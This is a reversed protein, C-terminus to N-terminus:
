RLVSTTRDATVFLQSVSALPAKVIFQAGQLPLHLRERPLCQSAKLSWSLLVADTMVSTFIRKGALWLIQRQHHELGPLTEVLVPADVRSPAM